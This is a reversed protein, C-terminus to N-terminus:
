HIPNPFYFNFLVFCFLLATHYSGAFCRRKPLTNGMILKFQFNFGGGISSIAAALAVRERERERSGWYWWWWWLVVSDKKVREGKMIGM